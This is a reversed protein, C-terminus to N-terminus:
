FFSKVSRNIRNESSASFCINSSTILYLISRHVFGAINISWNAARASEYVRKVFGTMLTKRVRMFSDAFLHRMAALWLKKCGLLTRTKGGGGGADVELSLYLRIFSQLFFAFVIRWICFVNLCFRLNKVRSLCRFLVGAGSQRSAVWVPDKSYGSRGGVFNTLLREGEWVIRDMWNQLSYTTVVTSCDIVEFVPKSAPKCTKVFCHKAVYGLNHFFDLKLHPRVEAM